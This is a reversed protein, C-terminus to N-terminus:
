RGLVRETDLEAYVDRSAPITPVPLDESGYLWALQDGARDGMGRLVADRQAAETPEVHTLEGWFRSGRQVATTRPYRIAEFEAFPAALDDARSLLDALAVADELAQCAGQAFYQHAAHAADGLILVRGQSWGPRPDRDFQVWKKSLDLHALAAQVVPNADAFAEALEKPTGWAESGVPGLESRFSSVLNVMDGGRIPYHMVHHHPGTQLTVANEIEPLREFTGRYIVYRSALPPSDDGLVRRVRSRIGDAGILVEATASSGDAFELSVSSEDQTFDVLERGAHVTVNGTDAAARLLGSLLDGRHMVRYPSGFREPFDTFDISVIEDGTAIDRMVARDPLVAAVTLYDLVGLDALIRGANPAVQLGAGVEGIEAAREFVDVRIGVRGLALATSIGGIGCGVIAVRAREAGAPTM